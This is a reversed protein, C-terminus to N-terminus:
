QQNNDEQGSPEKIEKTKEDSPFELDLEKM